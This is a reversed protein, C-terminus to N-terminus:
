SFFPPGRPHPTALTTAPAPREAPVSPAEDTVIPAPLPLAPAAVVIPTRAAFCVPCEPHEDDGTDAHVHGHDAVLLGLPGTLLLLLLALATASRRTM